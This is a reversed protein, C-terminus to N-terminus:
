GQVALDPLERSFTRDQAVGPDLDALMKMAVPRGGGVVGGGPHQFPGVLYLGAIGPVTYDGLAPTPRAMGLQNAYMGLGNIDGNQFSPSDKEHDLPSVIEYNRINDPGLNEFFKGVYSLLFEAYEDKIEEWREPGGDALDYGTLCFLHLVAKGEPARSPDPISTCSTGILPFQALRGRKAEDFSNLMSDYGVHSLTNAAFGNLVSSAKYRLPENLAAHIVFGTYKSSEAKAAAKAISPDLETVISGLVHPHFSGLVAERATITEGSTTRVGVARGNEVIVKDVETELRIDGGHARLASICADTFASGGGRPLAIGYKSLIGLSAYAFIGTNREEPHATVIESALRNLAVLIHEDTFWEAFVDAVSLPMVRAIEAGVPSASLAVAMTAPDAPPVFFGPLIAESVAIATEIFEPYRAADETNFRAIEAATKDVDSFLRLYTDDDFIAAYSERMNIYELGHASQLALEDDTILPNAQILVHLASHRESWFGPEAMEMTHVGGGPYDMRELVLVRKGAKALYGAAILGNHGSGVVVVDYNTDTM